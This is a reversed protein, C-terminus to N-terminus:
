TSTTQCHSPLPRRTFAMDQYLRASLLLVFSLIALERYNFSSRSSLHIVALDSAVWSVMWSVQQGYIHRMDGSFSIGYTSALTHNWTKRIGPAEQVEFQAALSTQWCAFTEERRQSSCTQHKVDGYCSCLHMNHTYITHSNYGMQSHWVMGFTFRLCLYHISSPIQDTKDDCFHEKFVSPGHM